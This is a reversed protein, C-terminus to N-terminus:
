ARARLRWLHAPRIVVSNEPSHGFLMSIANLCDNETAFIFAQRIGNWDFSSNLISETFDANPQYDTWQRQGQFGSMIANRGKAEEGFGLEKLKPNNNVTTEMAKLHKKQMRNIRFKVEQYYSSSMMDAFTDAYMDDRITKTYNPKCVRNKIHSFSRFEKHCQVKFDNNTTLQNYMDYFNDEAKIMERRFTMRSKTGLVEIRETKTTNVQHGQQIDSANLGASAPFVIFSSLAILTGILTSVAHKNKIKTMIIIRKILQNTFLLM